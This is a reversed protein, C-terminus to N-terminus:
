QSLISHFLYIRSNLTPIYIFGNIKKQCTKCFRKLICNFLAHKEIKKKVSCSCHICSPIEYLRQKMLKKWNLPSTFHNELPINQNETPCPPLSHILELNQNEHAHQLYEPLHLDRHMHNM